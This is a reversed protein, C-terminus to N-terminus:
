NIWQLQNRKITKLTTAFCAIFLSNESSIKNNNETTTSKKRKRKQKANQQGPLHLIAM